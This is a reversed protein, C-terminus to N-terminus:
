QRAIEHLGGITRDIESTEHRGQTLFSRISEQQDILADTVRNQGPKYEGLEIMLKLEDLKGLKARVVAAASIAEPEAIHTAVRSASRLVDVAPFHGVGALQRSLYIHGDIISRVEEGIPDTEDEGELLVTYFATLNGARTAGGRELLRPLNDFVSPPYGRRAPLEGAALAIDRLARAYRTVSDMLLVVNKGQDRFYEAISTAILAANKREVPPRDSTAFVVVTSSRRGEPIGDEIFEAVERGREGVLAVVFVDATTHEILMSMLTTKGAAAPAFVGIRQGYGCPIMADLVRIGTVAQECIAAREQFAVPARNLSMREVDGVAPASEAFRHRVQGNGDLVCGLLASSVAVDMQRGSPIVICDKSLGFADGVLSLLAGKAELAVVEAECVISADAIGRRVVCREGIAVGHLPARLTTASIDTPRVLHRVVVPAMVGPQM